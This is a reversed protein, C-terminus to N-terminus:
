TAIYDAMDLREIKDLVSQVNFLLPSNNYRELAAKGTFKAIVLMDATSSDLLLNEVKIEILGDIKGSLNELGEKLKVASIKKDSDTMGSKFNVLSIHVLM